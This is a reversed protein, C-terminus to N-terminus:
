HLLGVSQCVSLGVYWAVRDNIIPQM